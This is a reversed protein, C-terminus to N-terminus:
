ADRSNPATGCWENVSQRDVEPGAPAIYNDPLGPEVWFATSNSQDDELSLLKGNTAPLLSISLAVCMLLSINKTIRLYM